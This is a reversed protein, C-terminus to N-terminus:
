YVTVTVKTGLSYDAGRADRSIRTAVFAYQGPVLSCASAFDGPPIMATLRQGPDWDFRMWPMQDPQTIAHDIPYCRIKDTQDHPEVLTLRLLHGSENEFELVDNRSMTLASPSILDDDRVVIKRRAAGGDVDQSASAIGSGAVMALMMVVIVKRIAPLEGRGINTRFMHAEEIQMAKLGCHKRAKAVTTGSWLGV